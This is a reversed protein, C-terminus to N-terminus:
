VHARGIKIDEIEKQLEIDINLYLDNGKSGEELLEYNGNAHVLYKNKTGKLYEDYQYELYSIGVTDNIMYGSKIYEQKYENPIEGVSGLIGRLTTGYPYTREWDLRIGIGSLKGVSEAITAYELETVENNKIVKETYSYGNNMLYYIYATEKDVTELDQSTIKQLKIEYLDESTIERNKYLEYEENTILSLDSHLKLYYQRLIRDTVKSYDVELITSLKHAIDLEKKTTTGAEKQYYIVKVPKNDVIIVGNRDYIRGRPATDSYVIKETLSVLKEKYYENKVIQIYFLKSLIIAVSLVVFLKLIFLRKMNDGM